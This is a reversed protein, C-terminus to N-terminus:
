LLVNQEIFHRGYKRKSIKRIVKGGGGGVERGQKRTTDAAAASVFHKEVSLQASSLPTMLSKYVGKKGLSIFM